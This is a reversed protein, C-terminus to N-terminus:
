EARGKECTRDLFLSPDGTLQYTRMEGRVSRIRDEAATARFPYEAVRNDLQVRASADM